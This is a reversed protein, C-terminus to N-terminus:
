CTVVEEEISEVTEILQKHIARVVENSHEEDVLFCVNRDSAGCCILRIVNDSLSSFAHSIFGSERTLGHGIIGMLALSEEVEIQAVEKLEQLVQQTLLEPNDITISVKVQSTTVLDVSIHHRALVGFFQALFGCAHFMQLNSATLLTQNKRVVIARVLPPSNITPRIWTGGSAPEFTSGVFIPIDSRVAPWLTAPHLVKAGYTAMEAAEAFSLEPLVQSGEVLSPDCSYIGTVDTWIRLEEADLAEAILAASYDSGGRGLTTTEGERTAGIFGQTIVVKGASIHPSVRTHVAKQIAIPDPEARGYQANTIIIQRADVVISPMGEQNLAEALLLSSLREGLSLLLDRARDSVEQLLAMGKLRLRIEELLCEMEERVSQSAGIEDALVRHRTQIVEYYSKIEEKSHNVAADALTLLTNTMGSMASAIVVKASSHHRLVHIVQRYASANSLSTGGFKAVICM